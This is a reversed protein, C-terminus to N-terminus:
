GQRVADALDPRWPGSHRTHMPSPARAHARWRLAPPCVPWHRTTTPAASRRLRSASRRRSAPRRRQGCWRATPAPAARSSRCVTRELIPRRWRTGYGLSRPPTTHSRSERTSARARSGTRARRRRSLVAGCSPATQASVRSRRARARRKWRRLLATGPRARPVAAATSWGAGRTSAPRRSARPSASVPSPAFPLQLAPPRTPGVTSTGVCAKPEDVHCVSATFTGNYNATGDNCLTGTQLEARCSESHPM